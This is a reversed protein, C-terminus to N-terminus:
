ASHAVARVKPTGFDQPHFERLEGMCEYHVWPATDVRKSASTLQYGDEKWEWWGYPLDLARTVPEGCHPCKPPEAKAM